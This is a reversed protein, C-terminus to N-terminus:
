NKQANKKKQNLNTVSKIFNYIGAFSGLVSCVLLMYPKTNFNTDLWNGLFAMVIVSAALQTGLGLYPGIESYSKSIKNFQNEEKNKGLM